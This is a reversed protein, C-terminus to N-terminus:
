LVAGEQIYYTRVLLLNINPCLDTIVIMKGARIQAEVKAVAFIAVTVLLAIKVMM